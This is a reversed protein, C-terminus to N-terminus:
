GAHLDTSQANVVLWATEQICVAIEIRQVAAAYASSYTRRVAPPIFKQRGFGGSIQILSRGFNM